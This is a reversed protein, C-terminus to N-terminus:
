RFAKVDRFGWLSKPCVKRDLKLLHEAVLKGERGEWETGFSASYYQVATKNLGLKDLDLWSLFENVSRAHLALGHKVFGYVDPTDPPQYEFYVPCVRAVAAELLISTNGAVLCHLREMFQSISDVKPDSLIVKSNGVYTRKYRNIDAPAQAPHWRLCVERGSEIVANVFCVVLDARDLTNVAVGIYPKDVPRQIRLNKKQGTLFVSPAPVSTPYAPQNGECVLYTDLASQGDLFAYNMRLAPFLRGVSAHQLYVTKIGMYHAVALMCRNPVNHDNATIVFEPRLRNFLRYFYVLYFYSACFKDFYWRAAIPSQESLSETLDRWRTILLYLGKIDDLPGLHYPVYREKREPHGLFKSKCIAVVLEGQERLADVVGNLSNAQNVTDAFVLYKCTQGRKVSPKSRFRTEKFMWLLLYFLRWFIGRLVPKNRIMHPMSQLQQGHFYALWTEPENALIKRIAKYWRM